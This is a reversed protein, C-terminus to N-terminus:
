SGGKIGKFMDSFFNTFSRFLLRIWSGKQVDDNAILDVTKDQGNYSVKVKGLADGKTIPAVLKSEELPEATIKFDTDKAGKRAVFTLGTKTVLPVQTQVGKKINVFKLSDIEQKANLFPKIEFNNFGYDLLKRTENFREPETKTGMVVSILRMGNREATGTFCYGADDTSGTKLGDLGQYAYKKLNTNSQNGELMWNWNIMPTKDTARLKLSPIKTFELIEKHDKLINYALIGADRATMKTEGEISTPPNKLDARSLGTASIFHAKDSMGLQKAKENMMKAFNEETGGLLEAFAVSADNASYISMANFMDKFTLTENAAILQGSGIVDAANKSATVPSDWKYKGEKISEMALYETMMKAMSAPPFAEDANFEYLVAGTSAEMIIASKAAVKPENNAPTPTTSAAPAAPATTAAPAKTDAAYTPQIHLLLSQAILSVGLVLAVKKKTFSLFRM